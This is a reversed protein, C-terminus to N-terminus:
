HAHMCAHQCNNILYVHWMCCKCAQVRSADGQSASPALCPSPCPTRRPSHPRTPAETWRIAKAQRAGLGSGDGEHVTTEPPTEGCHILRPGPVLRNRFNHNEPLCTDLVALVFHYIATINFHSGPPSMSNRTCYSYINRHTPLMIVLQEDTGFYKGHDFKAPHQSQSTTCLM